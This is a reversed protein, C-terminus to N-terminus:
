RSKLKKLLDKSANGDAKMGVSQQYSMIMKKTNPGIIGDIKELPYGKRQLLRQVEKREEFDLPVYGRPWQQVFAGRGALRDGLHGIAMAYWDSNNYRKIVHFNNFLMFSPGSPGAPQFITATGHDRVARGDMGVIGRQAWASPMQKGKTSAGRPVQVEVGWPQGKRWGFKRLYAATSALADTPDDSWIDRRGDGTFDVAYALYSTPIFQTHGMAGAWSGKMNEPSTDGSQLIKLAGILQKQFFAGRRGDFALTALADIVPIDGRKTGYKSEMGWVAAVIEKEVGYTQEIRKLARGHQRLGQQGMSIRESSAANDMYDWIKSKFEVQNRDKQIVDSNYRANRFARDFVEANIGEALAQGRFRGIWQRFAGDKTAVDIVTEPGSAGLEAPRLSPRRIPTTVAAMRLPEGNRAVPRPSTDTTASFGATGFLSAALAVTFVQKFM